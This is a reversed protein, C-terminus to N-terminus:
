TDFSFTKLQFHQKSDENAEDSNEESTDTIPTLTRNNLGSIDMYNNIDRIENINTRINNNENWNTIIDYNAQKASKLNPNTAFTDLTTDQNKSTKTDLKSEVIKVKFPSGRIHYKNFTLSFEYLGLFFNM